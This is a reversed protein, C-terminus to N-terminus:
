KTLANEYINEMKNAIQSLDFDVIKNLNEKSMKIRLEQNEILESLAIKFGDVNEPNILYGGKGQTILDKNGRINSVVCPLGNAMAEMLSLSLGERYSPFAYIDSIKYIEDIDNRYNLLKINDEVGYKQIMRSLETMLKGKGCILYYINKNQLEAIAKIIVKHNKNRNIEGVSLVIIAEKPIGLSERKLDVNIEKNQMKSVDIGVGPVYQVDGASFHKARKYDEKNITITTDTIKSLLKEVPYYMLWNILPAGKYFHFGHATYLIKTNKINSFVVRGLVGGLPTHCHILDFKITKKLLNLQKYAKILNLIKIPSRAFDIQHCVIGTGELKSNDDGYFPTKFNSAYHIEYGKKKLIKVNNMEFQPVFGSVTTILLAKKM